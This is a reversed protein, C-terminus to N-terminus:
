IGRLYRRLLDDVPEYGCPFAVRNPSAGARLLMEVSEPSRREMWYSDVCAGVALALATRDMDDLADVQAGREILLQVTSHRARWAAVHLATSHKAVEWYGDGEEFRAGVDVGLDLLCRVGGTNGAGAFEALVKGGGALVERAAQPNRKLIARIGNADNRACAALLQEVGHLEIAIGRREFLDLLDGRGRRAALAIASMGGAARTPDAGHDLLLEVIELANDRRVAQQLPTHRWPTLRNPDAGHDLLWRVGETDHWDHKRLLMTALSDETLKGTPVLAKLADNEYSEPTHYTVEGDNPDAGHALLLRTLEGHHAVGAAGYLVSEFEPKPRHSASHFGSNASAGADLLAAAARVFAGSRAADLRLYKSFCLHTLADWGGPGGKATASARDEALFHRVAADDGLIAAVHIGSSAIEPHADLIAAAPELPGHWVAAEIFAAIPDEAAM